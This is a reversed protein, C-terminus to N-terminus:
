RLLGKAEAVYSAIDPNDIGGTEHAREFAFRADDLMGLEVLALAYVIWDLATAGGELGDLVPFGALVDDYRRDRLQALSLRTLGEHDEPSELIQEAAARALRTTERDLDPVRLVIFLSDDLVRRAADARAFLEQWLDEARAPDGWRRYLRNIHFTASRLNGDVGRLELLGRAGALLWEEADAFRERGLLCAGLAVKQNATWWTEPGDGDRERCAALGLRALEEGDAFRSNRECITALWFYSRIRTIGPEHAESIRLCERFLDELEPTAVGRSGLREGWEGACHGFVMALPAEDPIGSARLATVRRWVRPHEERPGRAAAHLEDMARVLEAHEPGFAGRM